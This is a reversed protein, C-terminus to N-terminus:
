GMWFTLGVSGARAKGALGDVRGGVDPWFEDLHGGMGDAQVRLQRQLWGLPKVEGLPLPRFTGDALRRAAGATEARLTGALAAGAAMKLADRRTIKPDYGGASSM